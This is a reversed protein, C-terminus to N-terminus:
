SWSLYRAWPLALPMRGTMAQRPAGCPEPSPTYWYRTSCAMAKSCQDRQRRMRQFYAVVDM